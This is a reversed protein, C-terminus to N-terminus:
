NTGKLNFTTERKVLTSYYASENGESQAVDSSSSTSSENVRPPKLEFGASTGTYARIKQLINKHYGFHRIRYTGSVMTQAIFCM